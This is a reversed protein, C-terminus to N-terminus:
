ILSNFTGRKVKLGKLFAIKVIKCFIPFMCEVSLINSNECFTVCVLTDTEAVRLHKKLYIYLSLESIGVDIKNVICLKITVFISYSYCSYFVIKFSWM